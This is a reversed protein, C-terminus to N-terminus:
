SLHAVLTKKRSRGSPARYNGPFKSDRTPSNKETKRGGARLASPPQIPLVRAGEPRTSFLTFHCPLNGPVRLGHGMKLVAFDYTTFLLASIIPSKPRPVVRCEKATSRLIM